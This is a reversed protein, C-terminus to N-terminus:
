FPWEFLSKEGERIIIPTQGETVPQGLAANGQLRRTEEDADIIDGPQEKDRWFILDDVFSDQEAALAATEEDVVRRIEPDAEIAGTKDLLAVEGKTTGARRLRAEEDLRRQVADEGFVVRQADLSPQIDQYRQGNPDPPRLDYEPPLTLPARSVVAFEDPTTKELGLIRGTDGSCASLLLAGALLLGPKMAKAVM